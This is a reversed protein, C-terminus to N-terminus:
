ATGRDERSHRLADLFVHAVHDDAIRHVVHRGRREGEVLGAHKLRSLHQSVLPQSVGLHEVLDAVTQPQETLRHVIAARVPSALAAFMDAVGGYDADLSPRSRAPPRQDNSARV